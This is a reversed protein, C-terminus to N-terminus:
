IVELSTYESTTVTGGDNLIWLDLHDSLEVSLTAHPGIVFDHDNTAITPASAGAVTLKAWLYRSADHNTVQLGARNATISSSAKQVTTGSVSGTTRTGLNVRRM